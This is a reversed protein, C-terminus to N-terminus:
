RQASAQAGVLSVLEQGSAALWRLTTELWHIRDVVEALPAQGRRWRGARWLASGVSRSLLLEPLAEVEVPTLQRVSAHGRLFAATRRQWQEADLAGSQSLAVLFDQIRFDAGAIEFDLLATVQGTDPDALVNSAALDAHIVQVPLTGVAGAWWRAYRRAAGELLAVQEDNVGAARLEYWLDKDDTGDIPVPFPGGRWDQPADAPPVQRLAEGLMGVARGFRELAAESELDPRVGPLWRCLTAPGVPTDIVTTGDTTAVPEPVDFPLSAQRLWGLLRQEAHVQAVSLNESIRLVFRRDGQAVLFTQNNTGQDPRAIHTDADPYLRWARLLEALLAPYQREVAV